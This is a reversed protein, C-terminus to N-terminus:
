VIGMDCADKLDVFGNRLTRLVVVESGENCHLVDLSFRKFISNLRAWQFKVLGNLESGLDCFTKVLRDRNIM